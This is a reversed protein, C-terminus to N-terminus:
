QMLWGGQALQEMMEELMLMEPDSYGDKTQEEYLAWAAEFSAATRAYNRQENPTQAQIDAYLYCLRMSVRYDDPYDKQLALLAEEAAALNGTHQHVIALNQRLQFTEYGNDLLEQFAAAAKKYYDAAKAEDRNNVADRVYADALRETLENAHRPPLLGKAENLLAIEGEFDNQRKLADACVRYARYLMYEDRAAQITERFYVAADGYEGKAYAIEGRLLDLSADSLNMKEATLMDEAGSIDGTRALAIAYDRFYEANDANYEVASQYHTVANTYDEEEFYCGAAIAYIDGLKGMEGPNEASPQLGVLSGEIFARCEEYCGARFLSLAKGHFAVLREPFLLTAVGFLREIEAADGAKELQLVAAEYKEVKERGM